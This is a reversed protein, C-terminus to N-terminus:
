DRLHVITVGDGGENPGGFEFRDVAPSARLYESVAKRLAGSGKGHIVRVFPLAARVAGDLYRDMEDEVDAVRIGRIDLEMPVSVAATRIQVPRSKEIPASGVRHLDDMPRTVRLTGLQVVAENMGLRAITGEQDLSVVRVRDGEEIPTPRPATVRSRAAIGRLEAAAREAAKVEDKAENEFERNRSPALGESMRQLRKLAKRSETLSSEAEKRAEEFASFRQRRAEALEEDREKSMADAAARLAAARELEQSAQEQKTHIDALLADVELTGTEIYSAARDLVHEPMGLRRAISLANSRGPIGITLRYTPSLTDLDFEVSANEVLPHEYAFSKLESFHTTAVVIPGRAVLEAVVARAIASGEQPDTGTGLEDILALSRQDVRELMAIVNSIHSSFTSLSQAISQDDGIDAYIGDFVGITTGDDAPVYLGSQAMAVMLGVTKLAVTKGGTNPGTILLVRYRGGVEVDIPVVTRPDLLPHRAKRLLVAPEDRGQKPSPELQILTPRTARWEFALRAKALALDVESLSAVIRDLEDARSGVMASLGDLIRDIERQEEIQGERWRNNLDVV